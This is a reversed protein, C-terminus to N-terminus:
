PLALADVEKWPSATYLVLKDFGIMAPPIYSSAYSSINDVPVGYALSVHPELQYTSKEDLKKALANLHELPANSQLMIFFNQHYEDQAYVGATTLSIKKAGRFLLQFNEKLSESDLLTEGCFLTAHPEFHPFGFKKELVVIEQALPKYDMPAPMLWLCFYLM